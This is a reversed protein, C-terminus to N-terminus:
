VQNFLEGDSNLSPQITWWWQKFKSKMIREQSVVKFNGCGEDEINCSGMNLFWRDQFVVNQKCFAHHRLVPEMYHFLQTKNGQSM